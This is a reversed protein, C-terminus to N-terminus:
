PPAARAGRGVTAMREDCAAALQRLSQFMLDRPDFRLGTAKELRSLVRISLLSHGGLDFFNAHVSVREVGLAEKWMGALMREHPTGKEADDGEEIGEGDLRLLAERDISGDRGRPMADLFVFSGPVQEDPFRERLSRRLETVTPEEGTGFSVYAVLSREGPARGQALVAAADVPGLALLAAEIAALDPTTGLVVPAKRHAALFSLRAALPATSVVVRSLQRLRLLREVVALGEEPSMSAGEAAARRALEGTERGHSGGTTSTSASGRPGPSGPPTPPSPTRSHTLAPTPPMARAAWSPRCRRPSFASSPASTAFPRPSRSRATSRPRSSASAPTAPSLASPPSRTRAWSAPRTSSGSVGGFRERAQRVAAGLDRPSTVDAPVVLVEAGLSELALVKRIRLSLAAPTVKSELLSPWEQRPPLATRTTLVLKAQGQRAFLASLVFGVDGLGGTVLFCGGPEARLTWREGAAAPVPEFQQLWCRGRRVAVLIEPEEHGLQACLADAADDGFPPELDIVSGRLGSEEQSAVRVAAVLPAAEPHLHEGGLVEFLGCAAVHLTLPRPAGAAVLDLVSYFGRESAQRFRESPSAAGDPADLAWLHLVRELPPGERRLAEFLRRYDERESPDITYGSRADGGFARGAAVTAVPTGAARLRSVVAAGLGGADQFVLTPGPRGPEPAPWALKWAPRYLWSAPDRVEARPAEELPEVWHREREFPYGPLRVRRAGHAHLAEWRPEVGALWLSGVACLLGDEGALLEAGGPAPTAAGVRVGHAGLEVLISGDGAPLGGPVAPAELAFGWARLQAALADAVALDLLRELGADRVERAAGSPDSSSADLADRLRRGAPGAAETGREFAARFVPELALLTNWEALPPDGGAPSAAGFVAQLPPNRREPRASPLGELARLARVADERGRAVVFRRHDFARRGAQLTFAADALDIEPHAELHDALRRAAADLAAPTRASLPLLQLVRSPPRPPLEPAEEVVAHANTGGVGFASVGGRRPSSGAPWDRLLTSVYFPSAEFDIAPNPSEFHLSPPIQRNQISLVLKVLGAVGAAADLHGVNTKVSGLACFGRRSTQRRFAKTLAAVEAPDGLATGTGHAEIMGITDPDVGAASLAEVVVATQGAVGPAAFSAKLSGDNNM